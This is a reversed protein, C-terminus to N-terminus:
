YIHHLSLKLGLTFTNFTQGEVFTARPNQGGHMIAANMKEVVSSLDKKILEFIV